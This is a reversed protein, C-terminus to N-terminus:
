FYFPFLIVSGLGLSLIYMALDNLLLVLCYSSVGLSSFISMSSQVLNLSPETTYTLLVTRLLVYKTLFSGKLKVM